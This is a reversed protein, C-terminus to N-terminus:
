CRVAGAAEFVAGGFILEKSVAFFPEVIEPTRVTIVLILLTNVLGRRAEEAGVTVVSVVEAVRRSTIFRRPSADVSDLFTSVATGVLFDALTGAGHNAVRRRAEAAEPDSRRFGSRRRM